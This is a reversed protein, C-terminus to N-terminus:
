RVSVELGEFEEQCVAVQDSALDTLVDERRAVFVAAHGAVPEALHLCRSVGLAAARLDCGM